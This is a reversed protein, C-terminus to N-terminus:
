YEYLNWNRFKDLVMYIVMYVDFGHSAFKGGVNVSGYVYSMLM